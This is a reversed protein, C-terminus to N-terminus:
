EQVAILKHLYERQDLRLLDIISNKKSERLLENEYNLQSVIKRLEIVKDIDESKVTNGFRQDMKKAQLKCEVENITVITATKSGKLIKNNELALSKRKLADNLQGKNAAVASELVFITSKIETNTREQEVIIKRQEDHLTEVETLSLTLQGIQMRSHQAELNAHKMEKTKHAIKKKNSRCRAIDTRSESIHEKIARMTFDCYADFTTVSSPVQCFRSLMQLIMRKVSEELPISNPARLLELKGSLRQNELQYDTILDSLSRFLIKNKAKYYQWM